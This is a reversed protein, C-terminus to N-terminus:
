GGGDATTLGGEFTRALHARYRAEYRRQWQRMTQPQPAPYGLAAVKRSVQEYTWSPYRAKLMVSLFRARERERLAAAAIQLRALYAQEKRLREAQQKVLREIELRQLVIQYPDQQPDPRQALPDWDETPQVFREERRRLGRKELEISRIVYRRIHEARDEWRIEGRDIRERIARFAADIIGEDRVQFSAIHYLTECRSAVAEYIEWYLQRDKETILRVM